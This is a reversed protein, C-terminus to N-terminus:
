PSDGGAAGTMKSTYDEIAKTIADAKVDVTVFEKIGFESNTLTLKHKGASV